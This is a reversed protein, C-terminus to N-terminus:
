DIADFRCKKCNLGYGLECKNSSTRCVSAEKKVSRRYFISCARCVDIGMYAVNTAGGCVLCNKMVKKTTGKRPMISERIRFPFL